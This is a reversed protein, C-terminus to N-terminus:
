ARVGGRPEDLSPSAECLGDVFVAFAELSCRRAVAFIIYLAIGTLDSELLGM